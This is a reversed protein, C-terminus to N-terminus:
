QFNLFNKRFFSSSVFQRKPVLPKFFSFIRFINASSKCLAWGAGDCRLAGRRGGQRSLLLKNDTHLDFVGNMMRCHGEGAM